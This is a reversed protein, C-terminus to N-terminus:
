AKPGDHYQPSLEHVAEVLVSVHEPPTHQSIGHGLNFVHGNLSAAPARHFSALLSAVEGRIAEPGAFLVNPDLNGQVAIGRGLRKRAAGLDVTWDVGVVDAGLAGIAELWPGGGKTFVIQPVRRGDADRKLQQLVRGTYALSFRQFAGDALVGGWSDFVMVAQAGADIQANLYRAVADANIALMRHMLDPRAYLMTKVLRYDDSGAGEVMYCALTWPSGSFGILPVRGALAKRISAVADFVYRLQAMDPVALRAVAAEDRVPHAFRPGEGEAFSLGLGMADPVTLIDSFLIAADLPYRELPQLTVETAFDPNTALGMFSGARARTARYEPLYRGAQRMLWVPTVDVPQSLCARLFRDNELPSPM